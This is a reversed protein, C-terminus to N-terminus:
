GKMERIALQVAAAPFFFGAHMRQGKPLNAYRDEIDKHIEKARKWIAEAEQRGVEAVLNEKIGAKRDLDM